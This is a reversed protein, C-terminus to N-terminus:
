FGNDTEKKHKWEELWEIYKLTNRGRTTKIIDTNFEEKYHQITTPNFFDRKIGASFLVESKRFCAPCTLCERTIHEHKEGDILVPWSQYDILPNFCSFTRDLLEIKASQTNGKHNIFWEVMDEKYCDFFPSDIKINRGNMLTLFKSLDKFIEKNNDCVRDSLSGGIWIVDYNYANAMIAMLINRNPIFASDTEIEKFSLATCMKVPHMMREIYQLEVRTYRGGHQFYVCDFNHHKALLYERCIYSDIGSTFLLAENM